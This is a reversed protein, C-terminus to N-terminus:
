FFVKLVIEVQIGNFHELNVVYGYCFHVLHLVNEKLCYMRWHVKGVVFLVYDVLGLIFLQLRM